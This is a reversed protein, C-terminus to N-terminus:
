PAKKICLNQIRISGFTNLYKEPFFVFCIETVTDWNEIVSKFDSLNITFRNPIDKKLIIPQQFIKGVSSTIEFQMECECNSFYDFSLIYNKNIFGRWDDMPISKIACGAFPTEVPNLHINRFDIDLYVSNLKILSKLVTKEIQNFYLIINEDQNLNFTYENEILKPVKKGTINITNGFNESQSISVNNQQPNGKGINLMRNKINGKKIKIVSSAAFVSLILSFVACCCNIIDIITIEEM